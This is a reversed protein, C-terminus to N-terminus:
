VLPHLILNRFNGSIFDLYWIEHTHNQLTGYLEM